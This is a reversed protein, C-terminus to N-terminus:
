RRNAVVDKARNLSLWDGGLRKAGKALHNDWLWVIRRKIRLIRLKGQVIPRRTKVDHLQVLPAPLKVGNCLM